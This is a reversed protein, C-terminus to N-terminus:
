EYKPPNELEFHDGRSSLMKIIRGRADVIEIPIHIEAASRLFEPDRFRTVPICGQCERLVRSISRYKIQIAYNIAM